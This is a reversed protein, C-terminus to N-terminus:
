GREVAKRVIEALAKRLEEHGAALKDTTARVQWVDRGGVKKVEASVGALRLLRAALEARSRDTSAFQLEVKDYLYVNYKVAAGGVSIILDAAVPGGETRRRLGEWRIDLGEAALKVAEALKHSKLRDDGELLPPGFLFYLGALKIADDDSAVVRFTNGIKEVKTKVGYAALAAAWLLAVAHKGSTLVVKKMAASVYGDGGITNSIVAAFYKLTTENVGLREAQILLLAPAVVERAVKDYNLKDRLANLESRVEEGLQRTAADVVVDWNEVVWRKLDDWSEAKIDLMKLWGGEASRKIAEDLKDLPAEVVVQLKPGELTLTM